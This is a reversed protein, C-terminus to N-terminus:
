RTPALPELAGPRSQRPVCRGSAAAQPAPACQSGPDTLVACISTEGGREIQQQRLARHQEVAALLQREDTELVSWARYAQPGGCARAGIAISRCDADGRCRAPGILADIRRELEPLTATGAPAAAAAVAPVTPAPGRPPQAQSCAALLGGLALALAPRRWAPLGGHLSPPSLPRQRSPM